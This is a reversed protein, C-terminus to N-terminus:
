AQRARWQGSVAFCATGDVAGRMVTQEGQQQLALTVCQEATIEHNFHILADYLEWKEHYASDFGDCFWDLYRTNNVHGNFDLDSYRAVRQTIVPQQTFAPIGGPLPLPPELECTLEDNGGLWPKAMRRTTLDLQVYLMAACGVPVGGVFLEYYRPFFFHQPPKPWTRVTVTEALAPIRTMRLHARSLVWALNQARMERVGFHNQECQATGADQMAVFIRSARWRAHADVDETDLTRTQELFGNM